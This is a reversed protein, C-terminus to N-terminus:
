NDHENIQKRAKDNCAVRTVNNPDLQSFGRQFDSLTVIRGLVSVLSNWLSSMTFLIFRCELQM